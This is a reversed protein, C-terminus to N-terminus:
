SLRKAPNHWRPARKSDRRNPLAADIVVVDPDFSAALELTSAADLTATVEYGAARFANARVDVAHADSAAV